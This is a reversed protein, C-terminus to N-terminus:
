AASAYCPRKRRPEPDIQVNAAFHPGLADWAANMRGSQHLARLTLIAQGGPALWSMGSRKMRETVLTKCAAEMLGSGIPQNHKRLTAWRMRGAERNTRFYRVERRYDKRKQKGSVKAELNQLHRILKGPGHCNTQLTERWETLEAEIAETDPGYALKLADALHEMAHWFDLTRELKVGVELSLHNFSRWNERAGDSIAQWKAKPYAQKLEKMEAALQGVLTKMKTEPLRGLKVTKLRKGEGDLLTVTGCGVEKHGKPGETAKSVPADKMRLMIGDKSVLITAVEAAAPLTDLKRVDAELVERHAEWVAGVTKPLRDLHSASPSMGKHISLLEASKKSTCEEMYRCGLEAARQTWYGDVLGLRLELPVVSPGGQGGREVYVTRKVEIEGASTLYQKKAQHKRRYTRGQVIIGPVDLDHREIDARIIERGLEMVVEIVASEFSRQSAASIRPEESMRKDVLGQIKEIATTAAVNFTHSVGM